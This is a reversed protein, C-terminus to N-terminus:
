FKLAKAGITNSLPKLSLFRHRSIMLLSPPSSATSSTQIHALRIVNSTIPAAPEHM